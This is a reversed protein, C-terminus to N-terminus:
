NLLLKHDLIDFASSLDSLVAGVVKKEEMEKFRDDTKRTLATTTTTTTTGRNIQM